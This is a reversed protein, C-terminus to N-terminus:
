FRDLKLGETIQDAIKGVMKERGEGFAKALADRFVGDIQARIGTDTELAARIVEHTVKRVEVEFVEQLQSKTSSGYRDKQPQILTVLAAKILEDRKEPTMAEVIAKAVIQQLVDDSINVGAM